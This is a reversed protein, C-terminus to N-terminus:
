REQEVRVGIFGGALTCCATVIAVVLLQLWHQQALAGIATGIVAGVCAGIVIGILNARQSSQM